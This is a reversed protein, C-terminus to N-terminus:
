IGNVVLMDMISIGLVGGGLFILTNLGIGVFNYPNYIADMMEAPINKKLSELYLPVISILVPTYHIIYLDNESIHKAIFFKALSTSVGCVLETITPLINITLMIMIQLSEKPSSIISFSLDHNELVTDDKKKFNLILLLPVMVWGYYYFWNFCSYQKTVRMVSLVSFLELLGLVIDIIIDLKTM